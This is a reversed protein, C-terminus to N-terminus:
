LVEGGHQLPLSLCASTARHVGAALVAAMPWSPPRGRGPGRDNSCVRNGLGLHLGPAAPTAGPISRSNGPRVMEARELADCSRDVQDLPEPDAGSPAQ